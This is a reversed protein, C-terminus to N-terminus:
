SKATEKVEKKEELKREHEERQNYMYNLLWIYANLALSAYILMFVIYENRQVKLSMFSLYNYKLELIMFYLVHHM